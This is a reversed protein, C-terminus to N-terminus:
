SNLGDNANEGVYNKLYISTQMLSTQNGKMGPILVLGAAQSEVANRIKKCQDITLGEPGLGVDGLFIVDYNALQEDNPFADLYGRGGGLEGLEPHLLYCDVNVGPDRELANRTYRYEWRPSSEILLVQLAEQRMSIGVSQENNDAVSDGIEPVLRITLKEDGVHKPRWEMTGKGEGSAPVRVTQEEIRQEGVLLEVHVDKDSNMTSSISFPIRLPKGVVAFAPVDFSAIGLDPLRQVSGVALTHVPVNRLRMKTAAVNPNLGTNWDGDSALVVARLDPHRDLCKQMAEHIDTGSESGEASSFPEIVFETNENPAKWTEKSTLAQISQQRSTRQEETTIPSADQTQMSSSADYLIAITAKDTPQISRTWEPQWLTAMAMAILAIRLVELVGVRM